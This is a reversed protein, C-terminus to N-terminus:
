RANEVANAARVALEMALTLDDPGYIRASETLFLTFAGLIRGSSLLPVSIMSHPGIHRLLERHMEDTCSSELMERSVEPVLVPSSGSLVSVIPHPHPELRLTFPAIARVLSEKEPDVHAVAIRVFAGNGDIVDVTCYDALEPM